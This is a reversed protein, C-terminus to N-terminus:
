QRFHRYLVETKPSFHENIPQLSKVRELRFERNEQRKNCYALLIWGEVTFYLALPDIIRESYLGQGNLYRLEAKQFDRILVEILPLHPNM